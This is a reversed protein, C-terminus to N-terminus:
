RVFAIFFFVYFRVNAYALALRRAKQCTVQGPMGGMSALLVNRQFREKIWADYKGVCQLCSVVCFCGHVGGGHSPTVSKPADGLGAKPLENPGTCRWGWHM